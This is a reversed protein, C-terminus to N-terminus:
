KNGSTLPRLGHREFRTWYTTDVTPNIGPAFDYYLGKQTALGGYETGLLYCEPSTTSNTDWLDVAEKVKNNYSTAPINVWMSMTMNNM